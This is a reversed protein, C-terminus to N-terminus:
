SWTPAAGYNSPDYTGIKSSSSTIGVNSAQTWKSAVSGATGILTGVAGLIGAQKAQSGAQIDMQQEAVDKAGEVEYGYATHAANAAIIKQDDQAVETQTARTSAPSGTNVDLGDAAQAVKTSAIVQRSKMGEEQGQIAGANLAYSANQDTIVKNVGAVGAKYGYMSSQAGASTLAGAASLGGGILTSAAGVGAMITIPDAM